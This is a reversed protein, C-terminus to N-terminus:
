KVRINNTIIFIFLYYYNNNLLKLLIYGIKNETVILFKVFSVIFLSFLSLIQVFIYLTISLVFVFPVTIIKIM